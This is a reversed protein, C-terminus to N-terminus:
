EPGHEKLAARSRSVRAVARLTGAVDNRCYEGRESKRCGSANTDWERWEWDCGPCCDIEDAAEELARPNLFMEREDLARLLEAERKESTALKTKLESIERLLEHREISM